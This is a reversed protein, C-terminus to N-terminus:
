RIGGSSRACCRRGAAHPEASSSLPNADPNPPASFSRLCWWMRYGLLAFLWDGGKCVATPSVSMRSRAKGVARVAHAKLRSLRRRLTLWQALLEAHIKAVHHEIGTAGGNRGTYDVFGFKGAVQREFWRPILVRATAVGVGPYYRPRGIPMPQVFTHHADPERRRQL